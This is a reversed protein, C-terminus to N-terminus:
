LAAQKAERASFAQLVVEFSQIGNLLDPDAIIHGTIRIDDAIAPPQAERSSSKVAMIEVARMNGEMVTHIRWTSLGDQSVLEALIISCIQGKMMKVRPCNTHTWKAFLDTRQSSDVVGSISFVAYFEAATGENTISLSALENSCIVRVRAIPGIKSNAAIIPKVASEWHRQQRMEEAHERLADVYERGPNGRLVTEFLSPKQESAFQRTQRLEETQRDIAATQAKTALV